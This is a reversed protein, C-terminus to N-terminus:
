GIVIGEVFYLTADLIYTAEPPPLQVKDQISDLGCTVDLGEELGPLEFAPQLGLCVELCNVSTGTVSLAHLFM